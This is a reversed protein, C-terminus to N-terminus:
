KRHKKILEWILIGVGVIVALPFIYFVFYMIGSGLASDLWRPLFRTAHTGDIVALVLLISLLIIFTRKSMIKM